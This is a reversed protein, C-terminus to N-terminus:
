VLDERIKKLTAKAERLENRYTYSEDERQKCWERSEKLQTRAESLNLLATMLVAFMIVCLAIMLLFLTDAGTFHFPKEVILDPVRPCLHPLSPVPM